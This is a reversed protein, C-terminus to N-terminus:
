IASRWRSAGAGRRTCRPSSPTASSTSASPTPWSPALTRWTGRAPDQMYVM